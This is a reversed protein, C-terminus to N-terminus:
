PSAQLLVMTFLEIFTCFNSHYIVKDMEMVIDNRIEPYLM